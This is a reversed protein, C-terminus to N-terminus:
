ICFSFDICEIQQIPVLDIYLVYIYRYIVLNRSHFSGLFNDDFNEKTDVMYDALLKVITDVLVHM